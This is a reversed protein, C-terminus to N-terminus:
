KAFILIFGTVAKETQGCSKRPHQFSKVVPTTTGQGGWASKCLLRCGGEAQSRPDHTEPFRQGVEGQPARM